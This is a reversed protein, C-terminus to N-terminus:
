DEYNVSMILASVGYLLAFLLVQKSTQTHLFPAIKLPHNKTLTREASLM